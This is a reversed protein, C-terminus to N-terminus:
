ALGLIESVSLRLNPLQEPTITEGARALAHSRYEGGEPHGFVRILEDLLDVVWVECIGAEAYRPVKDYVDYNRSSLSVEIVLLVDQPQPRRDRYRREDPKLLVMDPEPESHASLHIPLQVLVTGPVVGAAHVLGNLFRICDSHKLGQPSMEILEGDLLELKAGPPFVDCDVMKDYQQVSLKYHPAAIVM